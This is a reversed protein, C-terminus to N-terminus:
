KKYRIKGPTVIIGRTDGDARTGSLTYSKTGELPEATTPMIGSPTYEIEATESERTLYIAKVGLRFSSESDIPCLYEFGQTEGIKAGDKYVEFKLVNGYDEAAMEGELPGVTFDDVQAIFADISTYHIALRRGTGEYGTLEVSYNTWQSYPLDTIEALVEFDAPNDSGESIMMEINEPYITYAKANIAFSFGERIDIPPSILWKDAQYRQPSLFIISKDGTPAAIAPDAPLMPPTTEWPNFVMPAVPMPNTATGSGPFSVINDQSGLAIPYVPFQDADITKWGEGFEGSAFDPYDEFSDSFLSEQNWRLIVGGEAPTATLNYPTIVNDELTLEIRKDADVTIESEVKEFAGESIHLTYTGAPLSPIVSKGDYVELLLDRATAPDMLTMQTGEPDLTSNATVAIELRHYPGAAVETHLETLASESARYIAKVGITHPGPAVDEFLFEYGETEGKEIGDLYIKFKENPNAASRNVRKAMGYASAGQAQGVYVDDVMLMFAGYRNAHNTYRIAFKIPTGAWRKLDYSFQKWGKFDVSEYNGQDIRIFDDATPSDLKTTVYVQFREAYKDAAKAYFSLINEEGPTVAPSILWDDNANGSSTRIFGAYQKGSLPRLVPYDYWWTPTVTLPNMIQCYQMVGRNPYVGGLAATAENDGDIGTWEGFTISFPEYDEFDDFFVPPEVNWTTRIDNRGTFPDHVTEAILSYPDRTKEALTIRLDVPSSADTAEFDQGVKLYGPRDIEIRHPGPYAKISLKGESNLKLTGYGVNYGTHTITVPQGTLNESGPATVTVSVPVDATQAEAYSPSLAVTAIVTAAFLINHNRM